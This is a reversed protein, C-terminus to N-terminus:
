LISKWELFAVALNCFALKRRSVSCFVIRQRGDIVGVLIVMLKNQDRQKLLEILEPLSFDAILHSCRV